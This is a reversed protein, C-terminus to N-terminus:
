YEGEESQVNVSDYPTMPRTVPAPSRRKKLFDRPIGTAPHVPTSWLAHNRQLWVAVAYFGGSIKEKQFFFHTFFEYFLGTSKGIRPSQLHCSLFFNLVTDQLEKKQQRLHKENTNGENRALRRCVGRSIM